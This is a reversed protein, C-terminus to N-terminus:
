GKHLRSMWYDYRDQRSMQSLKIQESREARSPKVGKVVSQYNLNTGKRAHDIIKDIKKM